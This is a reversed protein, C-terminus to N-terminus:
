KFARSVSTVPNFKKQSVDYYGGQNPILLIKFSSSATFYVITSHYRFSSSYIHIHFKSIFPRFLLLSFPFSVSKYHCISSFCSVRFLSLNNHLSQESLFSSVDKHIPLSKSVSVSRVSSVSSFSKPTSSGFLFDRFYYFGLGVFLFFFFAIFVFKVLINNTVVSDGSVYLAFVEKLKPLKLTGIKSSSSLSKDSYQFYKFKRSSFSRSAPIARLYLEGQTKYASHFLSMNQSILIIDQHLHRHYTLWWILVKNDSSLYNHAEDLVFFCKYLNYERAYSILDDDTKNELLKMTYLRTIHVLFDNFVFEYVNNCLDFNFSNINTLAVLYDKKLTNKKLSLASKSFNYYLDYVAKYTKGSGPIGLLFTVM